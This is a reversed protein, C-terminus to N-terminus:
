REREEAVANRTTAVDPRDDPAASSPRLFSPLGSPGSVRKGRLMSSLWDPCAVRKGRLVSSLWDPCAVRKSRPMTYALM